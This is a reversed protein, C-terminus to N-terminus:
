YIVSGSTPTESNRSPTQTQTPATPRRERVLRPADTLVEDDLLASPGTAVPAAEAEETEGMTRLVVETRQGIISDVVDANAATSSQAGAQQVLQLVSAGSGGARTAQAVAVPDSRLEEVSADTYVLMYAAFMTSRDEVRLRTVGDSWAARVLQRIGLSDEEFDSTEPRGLAQGLREVFAEFGIFGLTSLEYIEMYKVLRGNTFVYFRNGVDLRATVMSQGQGGVIEGRIVAVEYGTRLEEFRELSSAIRQFRADSERSVRDIELPDSMEEVLARYNARERERHYALVEEESAGWTVGEIASALGANQADAEPAHVVALGGALVVALLIRIFISM